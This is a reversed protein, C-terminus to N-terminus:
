ERDKGDRDGSGRRGLKGLFAHVEVRDAPDPLFPQLARLNGRQGSM